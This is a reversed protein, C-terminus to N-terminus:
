GSVLMSKIFAFFVNGMIALSKYDGTPGIWKSMPVLTCSLLLFRTSNLDTEPVPYLTNTFMASISSDLTALTGLLRLFHEAAFARVKVGWFELAIPM